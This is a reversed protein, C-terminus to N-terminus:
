ATLQARNDALVKAFRAIRGGLYRASELVEPAVKTEEMDATYSLGYPNGGSANQSPDTYGPPVIIAGWHYMSNYITLLTTEQGGHANMAGTFAAVAKNALKGEMWLSSAGDIFQKLQSSASGYRTGTGFVYGDAWELDDLTAEAVDKTQELHAKWRPNTDIAAQPALEHVKRVRVEAGAGEAGEAVARAVMYAHGTSSYYIVAVNTKDAM